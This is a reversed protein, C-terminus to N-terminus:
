QNFKYLDDVELTWLLNDRFPQWEMKEITNPIIYELILKECSEAVTACTGKEHFKKRAM